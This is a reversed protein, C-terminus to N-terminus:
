GEYKSVKFKNKDLSDKISGPCAVILGDDFYSQNVEFQELIYYGYSQLKSIIPFNPMHTGLFIFKIKHAQLSKEAGLLLPIENNQIDAHLIDLSDIGYTEMIWDISFEPINYSSADWDVFTSSPNYSAGIYGNLFEGTFDNLEFNLQGIELKLPIPEVMINHANMIKKHFWLSYYSWFSGCELMTGGDPVYTLAEHFLKEEQPEHHGKLEKIIDTVWKQHYCGEHILSGNNTVQCSSGNYTIVEGANEVKPINVTDRCQIAKKFQNFNYDSTKYLEKYIEEIRSM